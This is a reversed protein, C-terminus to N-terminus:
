ANSHRSLVNAPSPILYILALKAEELKDEPVHSILDQISLDLLKTRANEQVRDMVQRIMSQSEEDLLDNRFLADFPLAAEPQPQPQPQPSAEPQPQPSAEPQPQTERALIKDAMRYVGHDVRKVLGGDFLRKILYTVRKSGFPTVQRQYIGPYKEELEAIGDLFEKSKEGTLAKKTFSKGGFISSLLVAIRWDELGGAKFRPQKSELLKTLEPTLRYKGRHPGQKERPIKLKYLASKVSSMSLRYRTVLDEVSVFDDMTAKQPQSPQKQPVKKVRGARVYHEESLKKHVAKAASYCRKSCFIPKGHRRTQTKLQPFESPPPEV